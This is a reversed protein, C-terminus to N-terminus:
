ADLKITHLGAIELWIEKEIRDIDRRIDEYTEEALIKKEWRASRNSDSAHQAPRNSSRKRRPQQNKVAQNQQANPTHTKVTQNSRNEPHKIETGAPGSPRDHQTNSAAVPRNQNAPTQSRSRNNRKNRSRSSSRNSQSGAQPQRQTRDAATNQNNKPPRNQEVPRSRENGSRENPSTSRQNASSKQSTEPGFQRYTRKNRNSHSQNANRAPDKPSSGSQNPNDAQSM